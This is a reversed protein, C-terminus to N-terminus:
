RLVTEALDNTPHLNAPLKVNPLFIKNEGTELIQDKVEKEFIWLNITYGKHTLLNALATGWSGGGVVGIKFKKTDLDHNIQM